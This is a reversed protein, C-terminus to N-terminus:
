YLDYWHQQYIFNYNQTREDITAFEASSYVGKPQIHKKYLEIRNGIRRLRPSEATDGSMVTTNSLLEFAAMNQALLHYMIPIWEFKLEEGHHASLYALNIDVFGEQLSGTYSGTPVEQQFDGGITLRTIKYVPSYDGTFDYYTSGTQADIQAYTVKIPNGYNGMIENTADDIYSGIEADSVDDLTNLGAIRRVEAVTCLSGVVM